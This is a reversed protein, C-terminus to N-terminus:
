MVSLPYIKTQLNKKKKLKKKPPATSLPKNERKKM